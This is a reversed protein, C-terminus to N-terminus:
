PLSFSASFPSETPLGATEIIRSGWSREFVSGGFLSCIGASIFGGVCMCYLVELDSVPSGLSSLPWTSHPHPCGHPSPIPHPTPTPHPATL